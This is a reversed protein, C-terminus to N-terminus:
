YTITVVVTDSYKGASPTDQVPVRGYVPISQAAGTGTRGLITGATDGWPQSMNADRYLGYTIVEAGKKMTRATPGANAAGPGLAVSYATTNPCTVSLSATSTVATDLLGITGFDLPSVTVRCSAQVNATINFSPQVLPLTGANGNCNPSNGNSRYRVAVHGAMSSSYFGPAAGTQGAAVRGYITTSATGTGLSGLQVTILPAAGSWQSGGWVTARSADSFMQYSLSNAGSTMLRAGGASGGSGAGFHPCVSVTDGPLGLICNATLTTATDFYAGSGTDISGFALAGGDVSFTCVQALAPRPSVALAFLALGALVGLRTTAKALL